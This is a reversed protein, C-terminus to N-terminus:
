APSRRPELPGSLLNLFDTPGAKDELCLLVGVESGSSSSASSSSKETGDTGMMSCFSDGRGEEGGTRLCVLVNSSSTMDVSEYSDRALCASSVHTDGIADRKATGM